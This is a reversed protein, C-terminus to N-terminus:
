KGNNQEGKERTKRDIARNHNGSRNRLQETLEKGNVAFQYIEKETLQQKMLVHILRNREEKWELLKDLLDDSFYKHQISKREEAAKQIYKVKSDISPNRGNCKKLYKEWLGAHRHVSEVRDEMIAYEIFIAELYFGNSLAKKLRIFQERYNDYKVINEAEM